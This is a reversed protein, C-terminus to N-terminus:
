ENILTLSAKEGTKLSTRTSIKQYGDKIEVKVTNPPKSGENLAIVEIVSKGEKLTIEIEKTDSQITYDDLLAEGNVYLSIRDDDVKGADYILLTVTTNKVFVNLNENKLIPTSRITQQAIPTPRPTTPKHPDLKNEKSPIPIPTAAVEEKEEELDPPIDLKFIRSFILLGQACVDKSLRKSTYPGSFAKATKLNQVVGTFNLICYDKQPIESKTWVLYSAKFQLTKTQPNYLGRIYYLTEDPGGYDVIARGQINDKFFEFDLRYSTFEGSEFTQVGIYNYQEIQASVTNLGCWLIVIILTLDRRM